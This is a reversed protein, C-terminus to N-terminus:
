NKGSIVNQVIDTPMTPSSDEKLLGTDARSFLSQMILQRDNDKVESDKLLSLYFYTLTHREECDRALHFSSFMYKNISRILYAAFSILTAYIITWRIAASKDNEFWSSYIEGPSKVLIYCLTFFVVGVLLILIIFTIWGQNRLEEGRDSWYKAPEKLKLAEQYTSELEIKKELCESKLREFDTNCKTHYSTIENKNQKFWGEFRKKNQENSETIVNLLGKFEKDVERLRETFEQKVIGLSKKEAASRSILESDQHLFEYALNQGFHMNRDYENNQTVIYNYAGAFVQNSYKKFIDLLFITYVNNVLLVSNQKIPGNHLKRIFYQYFSQQPNRSRVKIEHYVFTELLNLINISYKKSNELEEPLSEIKKWGEVEKYFFEFIETIGKLTFKENIHQFDCEYEVNTYFEINELQNQIDKFESLNM